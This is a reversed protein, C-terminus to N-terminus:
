LSLNMAQPASKTKRFAVFALGLLGTGLLFLSSPEPAVSADLTFSSIGNNATNLQFSGNTNTFGAESLVGYGNVQVQGGAEPTFSLGDLLFSIATGTGGTTTFLNGVSAATLPTLFTLSDGAAAGLSGTGFNATAPNTFTVETSGDTTSLGSISIAGTISTAKAAPTIALAGAVALLVLSYKKM